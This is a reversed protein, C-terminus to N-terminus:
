ARFVRSLHNALTAHDAGPPLDISILTVGKFKPAAAPPLSIELVEQALQFSAGEVYGSASGGIEIHPRDFGLDIEEQDPDEISRQIIVFKGPTSADDAFGLIYAEADEDEHFSIVNATFRLISMGLEELTPEACLLVDM